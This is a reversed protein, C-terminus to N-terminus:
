WGNKSKRAVTTLSRLLEDDTLTNILQLGIRIVESKTVVEHQQLFKKMTTEIIEIDTSTVSFTQNIVSAARKPKLQQSAVEPSDIIGLAREANKILIDAQTETQQNNIPKSQQHVSKKILDNLNSKM